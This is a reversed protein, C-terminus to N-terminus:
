AAPRHVYHVLWVLFALPVTYVTAWLAGWFIARPWSSEAGHQDNAVRALMGRILFYTVFALAPIVVEVLLWIGIFAVIVALVIGIAILCGEGAEGFDLWLWWPWGDSSAQKKESKDGGGLGALWNRPQGMVHDDTIRHGGHLLIALAVAWVVWWLGVVIEFDVWPPFKRALPVVLVATLVFCLALIAASSKGSVMPISVARALASKRRPTREPTKAEGM